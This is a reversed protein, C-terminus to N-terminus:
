TSAGERAGELLGAQCPGALGHELLLPLAVAAGSAGLIAVLVMMMLLLLLVLSHLVLLKGVGQVLLLPLLLLCNQSEV